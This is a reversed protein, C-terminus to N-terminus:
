NPSVSIIIANNGLIIIFVDLYLCVLYIYLSTQKNNNRLSYGTITDISM